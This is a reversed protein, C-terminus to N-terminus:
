AAVELKFIVQRRINSSISTTGRRNTTKQSPVKSSKCKLTNKYILAKVTDIDKKARRM